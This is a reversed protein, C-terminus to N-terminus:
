QAEELARALQALLTGEGKPDDAFIRTLFPKVVGQVRENLGESWTAPPSNPFQPQRKRRIMDIMAAAAGTMGKPRSAVPGDGETVGQMYRRFQRLSPGGSKQYASPPLCNGSALYDRVAQGLQAVTLPKGHMGELAARMEATWSAVNPLLGLLHEMDPRFEAPVISIMAQATSGTSSQAEHAHPPPPLEEEGEVEVEVEAAVSQSEQSSDREDDQSEDREDRSKDRDRQAQQRRADDVQKQTRLERYKKYNLILFGGRIKEVRRGENEDDKSRPDPAELIALADDADSLPVNARRAIGDSSARVIGDENAMALMTIWVIRVTLPEGWISSDLITGYIKVFFDSM